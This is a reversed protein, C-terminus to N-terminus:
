AKSEQKLFIKKMIKNLTNKYKNPNVQLFISTEEQNKIQNAQAIEEKALQMEVKYRRRLEALEDSYRDDTSPDVAVQYFDFIEDQERSPMYEHPATSDFVCFDLERIIVLDLSNPDFSCHYIEVRFGNGVAREALKKLFTSKGTGPRGKIFYRKAVDATLNDIYDVPGDKTAAGFFRHVASGKRNRTHEGLLEVIKNASFQNLKAFNMNSIYIKEWEDHITKAQSFHEHAFLLHERTEQVAEDDLLRDISYGYDVYAPINLIGSKLQPLIVGEVHNDLCNHLIELAYGREEARRCLHEMVEEVLAGPYNELKIVNTLGGFNSQFFSTFGQSGNTNIFYHIADSM